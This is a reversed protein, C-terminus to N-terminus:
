QEPEERVPAEGDEGVDIHRVTGSAHDVITFRSKWSRNFSKVNHLNKSAKKHKEEQFNM